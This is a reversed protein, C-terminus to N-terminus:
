APIRLRNVVGVRVSVVGVDHALLKALFADAADDLDTVRDLVRGFRSRPSPRNEDRARGRTSYCFYKATTRTSSNKPLSAVPLM